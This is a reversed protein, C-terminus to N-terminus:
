FFLFFDAKNEQNPLMQSAQYILGTSFPQLLHFEVSKRYCVGGWSLTGQRCVRGETSGGYESVTVSFCVCGGCIRFDMASKRSVLEHKEKVM